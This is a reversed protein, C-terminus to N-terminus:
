LVGAPADAVEGLVQGLVDAVTVLGGGVGLGGVGCPEGVCEPVFRARRDAGVPEAVADLGLVWPRVQPRAAAFAFGVAPLVEAVGPAPDQDGALPGALGQGVVAGVALGPEGPHESKRCSVGAAVGPFGDFGAVGVVHWGALPEQMDDGVADL